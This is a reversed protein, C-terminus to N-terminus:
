IVKLIMFIDNQLLTLQNFEGCLITFYFYFRTEMCLCPENLM